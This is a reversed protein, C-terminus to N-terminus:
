VWAVIPQLVQQLRTDQYWLTWYIEEFIEWRGKLHGRRRVGRNERTNEGKLRKDRAVNRRNGKELCFSDRSTKRDRTGDRKTTLRIRITPAQLNNGDGSARVNAENGITIEM